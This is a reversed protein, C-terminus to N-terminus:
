EFYNTIKNTYRKYFDNRSISLISLDHFTNNYFRYEKITAELIFGAKLNSTLSEQNYSYVDFFVKNIPYQAFMYDIFCLTMAAGIGM